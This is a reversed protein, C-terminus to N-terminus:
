RLACLRQGDEIRVSTAMETGFGCYATRMASFVLNYGAPTRRIELMSKSRDAFAVVASNGKWSWATRGDLASAEFGCIYGGGNPGAGIANYYSVGTVYGRDMHLTVWAVRAGTNEQTQNYYCSLSEDGSATAASLIIVMGVLACITKKMAVESFKEEFIIRRTSGPV